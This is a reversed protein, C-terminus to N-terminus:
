TYLSATSSGDAADVSSTVAFAGKRVVWCARKLVEIESYGTRQSVDEGLRALRREIESRSTRWSEGLRRQVRETRRRLSEIVAASSTSSAWRAQLRAIESALQRAPGGPARACRCPLLTARLLREPSSVAVRM